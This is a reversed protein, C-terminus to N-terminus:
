RPGSPSAPRRPARRRGALGSQIAVCRGLGRGVRAARRAPALLQQLREQPLAVTSTSGRRWSAAWTGCRRAQEATEVGEAVTVMRLSQGLQVITRLLEADSESGGLREVFSRDIKIM